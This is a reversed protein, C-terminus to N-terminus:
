VVKVQHKIEFENLSPTNSGTQESKSFKLNGIGNENSLLAPLLQVGQLCQMLEAKPLSKGGLTAKDGM